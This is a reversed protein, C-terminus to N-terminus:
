GPQNMHNMHNMHSMCNKGRRELDDVLDSLSGGEFGDRALQDATPLEKFRVV